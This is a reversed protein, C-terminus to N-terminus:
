TGSSVYSPFLTFGIVSSTGGVSCYGLLNLFTTAAPIESNVSGSATAGTMLNKVTYSIVSGNPECSLNLEYVAARDTTPVLFNAGLPVKQATGSGDNHMFQIQADAADWGMGLLDTLSSPEVDTPASVTNRLGCFGRNTTTSGGTALAWRLTVNFGGVGAADGRWVMLGGGRFGAVATTAATTVLYDIRELRTHLSTAALAAATATGTGTIVCGLTTVTTSGAVPAIIATRGNDAEWTQGAYDLAQWRARGNGLKSRGTDSEFGIMGVPMIPNAAAWQAATRVRSNFTGM